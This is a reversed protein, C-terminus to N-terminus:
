DEMGNQTRREFWGTISKVVSGLFFVLAAAVALPIPEM